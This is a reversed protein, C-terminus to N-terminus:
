NRSRLKHRTLSNEFVTYNKDQFKLLFLFPALNIHHQRLITPIHILKINALSFNLNSKVAIIVISIYSVILTKSIGIALALHLWTAKITRNTNWIM